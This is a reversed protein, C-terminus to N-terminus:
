SSLWKMAEDVTRFARVKAIGTAVVLFRMMVNAFRHSTVVAVRKLDPQRLTDLTASRVAKPLRGLGDGEILVRAEQPRQLRAACEGTMASVQLFQDATLEGEIRQRVVQNQEDLWVEFRPSTM